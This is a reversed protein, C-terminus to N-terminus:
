LLGWSDILMLALMTNGVINTQGKQQQTNAYNVWSARLHKTWSLTHSDVTPGQIVPTYWWTQTKECSWGVPSQCASPLDTSHPM